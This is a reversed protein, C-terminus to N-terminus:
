DGKPSNKDQQRRFLKSQDSGYKSDENFNYTTYVQQVQKTEGLLQSM